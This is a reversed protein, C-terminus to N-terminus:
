HASGSASTKTSTSTHTAATTHTSAATHAESDAKKAEDKAEAEKMDPKLAHIAAGLSMAHSGTMKAKLDDFPINLNHSAHLAALFQGENKFGASATSISEGKPLMSEVHSELQPNAEIHSAIHAGAAAAAGADPHVATGHTDVSTSTATHVDTDTHVGANSGAQGATHVTSGAAGVAGHTAAGVTAGVGHQAFLPAAALAFACALLTILTKNKM